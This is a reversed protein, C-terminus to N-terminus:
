YIIFDTSKRLYRKKRKNKVDNSKFVDIDKFKGTMLENLTKNDNNEQLDNVINNYYTYTLIICVPYFDGKQIDEIAKILKDM